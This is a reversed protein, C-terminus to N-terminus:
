NKKFSLRGKNWGEPCSTCFKETTEGDNYWSGRGKEWEEGPSSVSRKTKNTKLNVWWTTGGVPHDNGLRGKMPNSDSSFRFSNNNWDEPCGKVWTLGPSEFYYGREGTEPNWWLNKGKSQGGRVQDESLGLVWGEGPTEESFKMIGDKNWVRKGAPSYLFGGKKAKSKNAFHPNEDVQFYEHLTVEADYAEKRSSHTSLVIKYEPSFTEDSFSGFYNDREPSVFSGRSGIYGRGWKEYSYYTYFFEKTNKM